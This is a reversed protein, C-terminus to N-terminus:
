CWNRYPLILIVQHKSVHTACMGIQKQSYYEICAIESIHTRLYLKYKLQIAVDYSATLIRVMTVLVNHLCM